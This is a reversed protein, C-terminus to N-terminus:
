QINYFASPALYTAHYAKSPPKVLFLSNPADFTAQIERLSLM